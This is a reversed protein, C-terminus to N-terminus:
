LVNPPVHDAVLQDWDQPTFMPEAILEGLYTWGARVAADFVAAIASADAPAAARLRIRAPQPITQETMPKGEAKPALSFVPWPALVWRRVSHRSQGRGVRRSRSPHVARNM